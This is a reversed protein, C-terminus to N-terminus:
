VTVPSGRVSVVVTVLVVLKGEVEDGHGHSPEGVLM